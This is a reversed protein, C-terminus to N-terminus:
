LTKEIKRIKEETFKSYRMIKEMPEGDILMEKVMEEKGIIEGESKGKKVLNREYNKANTVIDALMRDVREANEAYLIESFNYKQGYVENLIDLAANLVRQEEENFSRIENKYKKAVEIIETFEKSKELMIMVKLLKSRFTKVSEDSYGKADVLAYNFNLVYDGFNEYGDFMSKLNLSVTWRGSGTHFVIPFVVPFKFNKRRREVPDAHNYFDRLVEVIYLLIRYAMRYDVRSQNEQLVYFIIKRKGKNLTGEYVIDAAKKKFDQLVYEKPSRRLNEEDLENIWPAKVCDKLFSIFAEKNGFLETMRTNHPDNTKESANATKGSKDSM